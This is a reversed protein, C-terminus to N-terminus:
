DGTARWLAEAMADLREFHKGSGIPVRPDLRLPQRTDLLRLRLASQLLEIRALAEGHIAQSRMRPRVSWRREIAGLREIVLENYHRHPGRHLPMLMQQAASETAPLLMGNCRFDDFGTREFGLTAIM